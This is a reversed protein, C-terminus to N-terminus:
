SFSSRPLLEESDKASVRTDEQSSVRPKKLVSHMSQNVLTSKEELKFADSIAGKRKKNQVASELNKQEDKSFEKTLFDKEPTSVVKLAPFSTQKLLCKLSEPAYEKFDVMSSSKKLASLLQQSKELNPNMELYEIIGEVIKIGSIAGCIKYMPSEGIIKAKLALADIFREIFIRKFPTITSTLLGLIIQLGEEIEFLKFFTTDGHKEINGFFKDMLDMSLHPLKKKFIWGKLIQFPWKPGLLDFIDNSMLQNTVLGSGQNEISEDKVLIRM